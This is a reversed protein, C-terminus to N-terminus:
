SCMSQAEDHHLYSFQPGPSECVTTCTAYLVFHWIMQHVGIESHVHYILINPVVTNEYIAM